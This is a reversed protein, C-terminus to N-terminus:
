PESLDLSDVGAAVLQLRTSEMRSVGSAGPVHSSARSGTLSEVVAVRVGRARVAEATSIASAAVCTTFQFGMMAIRTVGGDLVREIAARFEASEWADAHRKTIVLDRPSMADLVAEPWECDVNAGPVCVQAMGDRLDGGTFQGPSYESRVWITPGRVAHAAFFALLRDLAALGPEAEGPGHTRILSGAPDVFARQADIVVLATDARAIVAAARGQAERVAGRNDV